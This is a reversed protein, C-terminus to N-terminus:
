TGSSESQSETCPCRLSAEHCLCLQFPTDKFPFACMSVQSCWVLHYEVHVARSCCCALLFIVFLSSGPIAAKPDLGDQTGPLSSRSTDLIGLLPPLDATHLGSVGPNFSWLGFPVPLKFFSGVRWSALEPVRLIILFFFLLLRVM